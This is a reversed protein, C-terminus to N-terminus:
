KPFSYLTAGLRKLLGLNTGKNKSTRLKVTLTKLIRM